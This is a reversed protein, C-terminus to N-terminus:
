ERLRYAQSQYKWRLTYSFPSFRGIDLGGPHSVGVIRTRVSTAHKEEGAPAWDPVSIRIPYLGTHDIGNRRIPLSRPVNSAGGPCTLHTVNTFGLWTMSAM